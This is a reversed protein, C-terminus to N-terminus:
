RVALALDVFRVVPRPTAKFSVIVRVPARGRNAADRRLLRVTAASLMIRIRVRKRSSNLSFRKFTTTTRSAEARKSGRRKNARGALKRYENVARQLSAAYSKTQPDSRGLKAVIAATGVAKPLKTGGLADRTIANASKEFPGAFAALGPVFFRYTGASFQAQKTLTRLLSSRLGDVAITGRCRPKALVKPCDVTVTL